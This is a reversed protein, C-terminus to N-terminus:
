GRHLERFGERAAADNLRDDFSLFHVAHASHRGRIKLAAALQIGDMGRLGHRLVLQGADEVLIHDVLIKTLKKWREKFGELGAQFAEPTMDGERLRRGLASLMEPFTIVSTAVDTAEAAMEEVRDSGDEEIFLKALSSTDLYLIM